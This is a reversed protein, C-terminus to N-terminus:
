PALDVTSVGSTLNAPAAVAIDPQRTVRSLVCTGRHGFGVRAFGSAASLDFRSGALGAGAAPTPPAPGTSRAMSGGYLGIGRHVRLETGANPAAGGEGHSKAGPAAPMREIVSCMAAVVHHLCSRCRRGRRPLVSGSAGSPVCPSSPSGFVIV